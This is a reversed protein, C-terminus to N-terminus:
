IHAITDSLDLLENFRIHGSEAMRRNLDNVVNSSFEKWQKTNLSYVEGNYHLHPVKRGGYWWKHFHLAQLDLPVEASDAMVRASLLQPQAIPSLEHKGIFEGILSHHIDWFEAPIGRKWKWVELENVRSVNAASLEVM